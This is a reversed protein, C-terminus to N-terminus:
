GRKDINEIDEKILSCLDLRVWCEYGNIEVIHGARYGEKREEESVQRIYKAFLPKDILRPRCWVMDGKNFTLLKCQKNILSEISYNCIKIM